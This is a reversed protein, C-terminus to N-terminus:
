GELISPCFVEARRVLELLRIGTKGPSRVGLEWNRYTSFPIGVHDAMEPITLDLRLRWDKLQDRNM